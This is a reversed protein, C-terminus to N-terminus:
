AVQLLSLRMVSQFLVVIGEKLQGSRQLMKGMKKPSPTVGCQVSRRVEPWNPYNPHRKRSVVRDRRSHDVGSGLGSARHITLLDLEADEQSPACSGGARRAGLRVVGACWPAAGDYGDRAPVGRYKDRFRYLISPEFM